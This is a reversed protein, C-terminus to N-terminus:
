FLNYIRGQTNLVVNSGDGIQISQHHFHNEVKMHYCNGSPTCDYECGTSNGAFLPVYLLVQRFRGSLISLVLPLKLFASLIASIEGQPTRCYKQGANLLLQDQFNSKPIKLTATKAPKIAYLM